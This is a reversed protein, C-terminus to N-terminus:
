LARVAPADGDVLLVDAPPPPRGTLVCPRGFARAVTVSPGFGAQGTIVVGASAAVLPAMWPALLEAVLVHAHLPGARELAQTPSIPVGRASGGVVGLPVDLQTPRIPRGPLSVPEAFRPAEGRHLADVGDVSLHSVDNWDIRGDDIAPELVALLRARIPALVRVLAALPADSLGGLEAVVEAAALFRARELPGPLDAALTTVALRRAQAAREWRTTLGPYHRLLRLMQDVAESESLRPSLVSLEAIGRHGHREMLGDWAARRAPDADDKHAVQALDLVLRCVSSGDLARPIADLLGQCEPRHAFPERVARCATTSLAVRPILEDVVLQATPALLRDMWGSFGDTDIPRAARRVIRADWATWAEDAMSRSWAPQFQGAVAAALARAGRMLMGPLLQRDRLDETSTVGGELLDPAALPDVESVWQALSGPRLLGLLASVNIHVRKDFVGTLGRDARLVGDYRLAARSFHELARALVDASLPDLEGQLGMLSGSVDLWARVDTGSLVAARVM